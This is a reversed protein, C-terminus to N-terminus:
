SKLAGAIGSTESKEISPNQGQMPREVPADVPQQLLTQARHNTVVVPSVKRSGSKTIAVASQKPHFAPQLLARCEPSDIRRHM